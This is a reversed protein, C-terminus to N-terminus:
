WSTPSTPSHGQESRITNWVHGAAASACDSMKLAMDLWHEREEPKSAAISLYARSLDDAVAWAGMYHKYRLHLDAAKTLFNAGMETKGMRRHANGLSHFVVALKDERGAAIYCAAALEYSDVAEAERGLLSHCIGLNIAANGRIFPIAPGAVEVAGFIIM